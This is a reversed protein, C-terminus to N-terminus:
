AARQLGYNNIQAEFERLVRQRLEQWFEPTIFHPLQVNPNRQYVREPLVYDEDIVGQKRELLL